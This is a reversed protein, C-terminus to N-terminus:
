YQYIHKVKHIVSLPCLNGKASICFLVSYTTKEAGPARLYANNDQKSIFVNKAVSNASLGAEDCSHLRSALDSADLLNNKELVDKVKNFFSTIAQNTIADARAITLIEPKRAALHSKWHM